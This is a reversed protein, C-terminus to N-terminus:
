SLEFGEKEAVSERLHRTNCAYRRQIKNFYRSGDQGSQSATQEHPDQQRRKIGPKMDPISPFDNDQQTNRKKENRQLM